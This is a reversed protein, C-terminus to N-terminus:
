SRRMRVTRQSRRVDLRDDVHLNRLEIVQNEIALHLSEFASLLHGVSSRLFRKLYAHTSEACSTTFCGLHFVKGVWAEVFKEKHKIQTTELYRTVVTVHHLKTQLDAWRAEFEDSSSAGCLLNWDVLTREWEDSSEFYGKCKVLVNKNIYCRCLLHTASPFVHNEAKLLAADNDNVVVRPEPTKKTRPPPAESVLAGM